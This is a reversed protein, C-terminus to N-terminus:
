ITCTDHVTLAMASFWSTSHLAKRIAVATLRGPAGVGVAKAVVPDNMFYQVAYPEWLQATIALIVPPMDVRVHELMAALDVPTMATLSEECSTSLVM